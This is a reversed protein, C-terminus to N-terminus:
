RILNIKWIILILCYFNTSFYPNSGEILYLESFLEDRTNIGGILTYM